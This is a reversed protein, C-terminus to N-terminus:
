FCNGFLKSKLPKVQRFVVKFKIKLRKVKYYKSLDTGVVLLISITKFSNNGDIDIRKMSFGVYSLRCFSHM